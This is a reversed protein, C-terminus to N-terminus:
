FRISYVIRKIKQFDNKILIDYGKERFISAVNEAQNWGVELFFSGKPALINEFIESFRRYFTLGDAGDTLSHKPEKKIHQPLTNYEELPIYPPNSVIIDFCCDPTSNLIDMNYCEINTLNYSIANAQTQEIAKSDIDIAIIKSKCFFDALAISIAGSGCGIDLIRLQENRYDKFLEIVTAVLIETEPRPIFVKNQIKLNFKLFQAEELIYQIPEGALLRKIYSKINSLEENTLPKEYNLYLEVRSLSLAKSLILEIFLRPSDFSKSRLYQTGWNIIDLITWIRKSNIENQPM